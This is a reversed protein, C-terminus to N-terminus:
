YNGVVLAVVPILIGIGVLWKGRGAFGQSGKLMIAGSLALFILALAFADGGMNVSASNRRYLRTLGGAALIVAKAAIQVARGSEVDL